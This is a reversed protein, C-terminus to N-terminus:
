LDSFGGGGARAMRGGIVQCCFFVGPLNVELVQRWQSVSADEFTEGSAQPPFDVAANNVLITPVGWASELRGTAEALGKRTTIDVAFFLVPDRIGDEAQFFSLPVGALPM